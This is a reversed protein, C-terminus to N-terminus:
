FANTIVLRTEDTEKSLAYSKWLLAHSGSASSDQDYMMM